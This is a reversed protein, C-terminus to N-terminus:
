KQPKAKRKAARRAAFSWDTKDVAVGLARLAADDAAHDRGKALREAELLAKKLRALNARKLVLPGIAAAAQESRAKKLASLSVPKAKTGRLTVRKNM